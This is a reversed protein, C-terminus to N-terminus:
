FNGNSVSEACQRIKVRLCFRLCSDFSFHVKAHRFVVLHGKFYHTFKKSELLTIALLTTM